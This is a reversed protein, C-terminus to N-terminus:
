RAGPSSFTAAVWSCALCTSCRCLSEPLRRCAPWNDNWLVVQDGDALLKERLM